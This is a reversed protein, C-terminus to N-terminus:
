HIIPLKNFKGKWFVKHCSSFIYVHMYVCFTGHLKMWKIIFEHHLVAMFFFKFADKFHSAIKRKLKPNIKVSLIYVNVGLHNVIKCILVLLSIRIEELFLFTFSSTYIVELFALKFFLGLNELIKHSWLHHILWTYYMYSLIIYDKHHTTVAEISQHDQKVAIKDNLNLM